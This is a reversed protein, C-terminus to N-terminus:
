KLYKTNLCVPKIKHSLPISNSQSCLYYINNASCCCRGMKELIFWNEKLHVRLEDRAIQFLFTPLIINM